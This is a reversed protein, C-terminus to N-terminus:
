LLAPSSRRRALWMLARLKRLSKFLRRTMLSKEQCAGAMKNNNKCEIARYRFRAARKTKPDGNAGEIWQGGELEMLGTREEVSGRSRGGRLFLASVRPKEEGEGPPLPGPHPEGQGACCTM